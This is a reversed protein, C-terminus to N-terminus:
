RQNHNMKEKQLQDLLLKWIHLELYPYAQLAM